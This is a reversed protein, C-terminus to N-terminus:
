WFEIQIAAFLLKDSYNQEQQVPNIGTSTEKNYKHASSDNSDSNIHQSVKTTSVPRPKSELRQMPKVKSDSVCLFFDCVSKIEFQVQKIHHTDFLCHLCSGM